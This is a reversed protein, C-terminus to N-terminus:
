EVQRLFHLAADDFGERHYFRHADLRKRHSDLHIQVAGIRRAEDDLWDIIAKGVGASRQGADVVLDDVVLIQGAYLAEMCRFGAVGVVRGEILGAALRYGDRSRMRAVMELYVAEDLHPRLQAMVPWTRATRDPPIEIVSVIRAQTAAAEM